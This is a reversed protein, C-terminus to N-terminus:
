VLDSGQNELCVHGGGRVKYKSVQLKLKVVGEEFGQLSLVTLFTMNPDSCRMNVLCM